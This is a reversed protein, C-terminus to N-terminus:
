KDCGDSVVRSASGQPQISEELQRRLDQIAEGNQKAQGHAKCAFIAAGLSLFFILFPALRNFAEWM